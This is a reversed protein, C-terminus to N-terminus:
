DLVYGIPTILRATRLKIDITNLQFLLDLKDHCEHVVLCMSVHFKLSIYEKFGTQPPNTLLYPFLNTLDSM